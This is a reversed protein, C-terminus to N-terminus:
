HRFSPSHIQTYIRMCEDCIHVHFYGSKPSFQMASGLPPFDLAIPEELLDFLKLFIAAQYLM